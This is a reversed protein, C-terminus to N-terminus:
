NPAENMGVSTGSLTVPYPRLASAIAQLYLRSEIGDLFM